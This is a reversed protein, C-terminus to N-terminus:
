GGVKLRMQVIDRFLGESVSGYTAAGGTTHAAALAAYAAADLPPADHLGAAWAQFQAPPVASVTFRMDSFGDGSFQASIGAYEGPEDARLYLDTAMGAMTYIQSGLRPVFFSNMVTASTLQFHIPTGAPIMLRNLSAAHQQPYIFLWRWDLSVVQVELPKAESTLRKAPDLAHSSEWAIGGLFLVILAPISWVLLELRGSYRWQPRYQARRNSARFWWAVFLTCAMVPIVIALMIAVSDLLIIREGAGVPGAPDLVGIM